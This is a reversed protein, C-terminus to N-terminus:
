RIACNVFDKPHDIFLYVALQLPNGHPVYQDVLHVRAGGLLRVRSLQRHCYLLHGAIRPDLIQRSTALLAPTETYSISDLSFGMGSTSGDDASGSPM